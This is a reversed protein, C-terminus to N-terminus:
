QQRLPLKALTPVARRVGWKEKLYVSAEPPALHKSALNSAIDSM